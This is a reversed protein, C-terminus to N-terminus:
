CLTIPTYDFSFSKNPTTEPVAVQYYEAMASSNSDSQLTIIDENNAKEVIEGTAIPVEGNLVKQRLEEEDKLLTRWELISLNRGPVTIKIQKKKAEVSQIEHYHTIVKQMFAYYVGKMTELNPGSHRVHGSQNVRITHKAAKPKGTLRDYKTYDYYVVVASASKYNNFVSRFPSTNMIEVFALQNIPYGLNFQINAMECKFENLELTGMYLRRDFHILFNLFDDVMNEAYGETKERFIKLIRAQTPDCMSDDVSNKLYAEKLEVCLERHSRLFDLDDQCARLKQLLYVAAERAIGISTPGTFEIKSSLKMSIIRESTGMDIIISHSFSGAKESRVIGRVQGDYRMSLIEGPINLEPPLRIKGQKRQFNLYSSLQANTVPLFIFIAPLNIEEVDYTAIITMTVPKLNDFDYIPPGPNSM